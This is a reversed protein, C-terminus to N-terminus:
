GMERTRVLNIGFVGFLRGIHHCLKLFYKMFLHHGALQLFPLAVVYVPVAVLSKLVKAARGEPFRLSIRGVLLARKIMVTRKWRAPPVAEFVIAESCWVFKHGLIMMRRFFDVDSGGTGFEPRFVPSIGNIIRRDFLVNSTRTKPWPLLFGTSHEPREYFKGRRLWIPPEQDFYPKVPGLVGAVEYRRLAQFLNLLWDHAPYEDDDITAILEGKAMEISRNRALSISRRPERCYIVEIPSTTGFDRVLQEASPRDDNDAVVVSFTFLDRTNQSRLEELLRKLLNPRRYTCICVSIHPQGNM